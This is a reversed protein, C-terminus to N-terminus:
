MLAIAVGKGGVLVALLEELVSPSMFDYNHTANQASISGCPVDSLVVAVM